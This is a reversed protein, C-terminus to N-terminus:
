KSYTLSVDCSYDQVPFWMQHLQQVMSLSLM